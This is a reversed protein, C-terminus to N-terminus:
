ILAPVIKLIKLKRKRKKKKKDLSIFYTDVRWSKFIICIDLFNM